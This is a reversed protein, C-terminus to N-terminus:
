GLEARRKISALLRGVVGVHAGTGIVAARYLRGARGPFLAWTEARVKCGSGDTADVHFSLLYRSFRHEGALVIRSPRQSETVRFGVIAAPMGPGPGPAEAFPCGLLRALRPGAGAAFRPALQQEWCRMLAATEEWARERSAAVAISHSDIFSLGGIAAATADSTTQDVEHGNM